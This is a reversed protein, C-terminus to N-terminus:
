RALLPVLAGFARRADDLRFALLGDRGAEWLRAGAPTEIGLARAATPSLPEPSTAALRMATAPRAAPQAHAGTALVLLILVLRILDPRTM